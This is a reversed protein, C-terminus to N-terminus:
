KKPKPEQQYQFPLGALVRNATADQARETPTQTRQALAPTQAHTMGGLKSRLFGRYAVMNRSQYLRWAHHRDSESLDPYLAKLDM